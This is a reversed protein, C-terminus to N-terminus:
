GLRLGRLDWFKAPNCDFGGSNQMRDTREGLTSRAETKPSVRKIDAAVCPAVDQHAKLHILEFRRVFM